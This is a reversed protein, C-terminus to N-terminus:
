SDWGCTLSRPILSYHMYAVEEASYSAVAREHLCCSVLYVLSFINEGEYGAGEWRTCQVCKKCM